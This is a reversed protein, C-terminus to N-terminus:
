GTASRQLAMRTCTRTQVYGLMGALVQVRHRTQTSDSLFGALEDRLTKAYADCEDRTPRRLVTSSRKGRTLGFRIHVLDHVAARGRWSLKLDHFTLENLEEVLSPVDFDNRDDCRALIKQYLQNWASLDSSETFPVPLGRLAELTSISKQIGAQTTMLFDHYAVFDSNLYLVLAKLLNKNRTPSTMGIQGTPVILFDDAYVAFKRSTGIIVHPPECVSLKKEVGARKSLFRKERPFPLIASRPFAFLYRRNKLPKVDLTDRGILDDRQVANEPTAKEPSMFRPGESFSIAGARGIAKLTSCRKATSRLVHLDTATGWMAVKWPLTSGNAVDRYEIFTLESSNM